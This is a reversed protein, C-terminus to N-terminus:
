KFLGAYLNDEMITDYVLQMLNKMDPHVKGTVEKLRIDLLRKWDQVSGTLVIDAKLDSNLAGRADEAPFGNEIMQFYHSECDLMAYEWVKRKRCDSYYYHPAIFTLESGFKKNSYNCWRTSEQASSLTRHTRLQACLARSTRLKMTLPLYETNLEMTNILSNFMLEHCDEVTITMKPHISKVNLPKHLGALKVIPLENLRNYVDTLIPDNESIAELSPMMDILARYNIVATYAIYGDLDSKDMGIHRKDCKAHFKKEMLDLIHTIYDDINEDYVVNDITITLVIRAHELMSMHGRKILNSVFNKSKEYDGSIDESKYCTRAVTEILKIPVTEKIIEAKQNKVIM